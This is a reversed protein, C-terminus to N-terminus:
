AVVKFFRMTNGFKDLYQTMIDPSLNIGKNRLSLPHCRNSIVYVYMLLTTLLNKESHSKLCISTAKDLNMNHAYFYLLEVTFVLKCIVMIIYECELSVPLMTNKFAMAYSVADTM